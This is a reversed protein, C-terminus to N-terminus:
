IPKAPKDITCSRQTGDLNVAEVVAGARTNSFQYFLKGEDCVRYFLSGSAPYSEQSCSQYKGDEKYHLIPGLRGIPIHKYKIGDICLNVKRWQAEEASVNKVVLLGKGMKIVGDQESDFESLEGSPQILYQFLVVATILVAIFSVSKYTIKM